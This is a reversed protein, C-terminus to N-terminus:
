AIADLRLEARIASPDLDDSAIDYRITWGSPGADEVFVRYGQCEALSAITRPGSLLMLELSPSHGVALVRADPPLVRNWDLFAQKMALGIEDCLDPFDALAADLIKGGRREAAHCAAFMRRVDERGHQAYIPAHEPVRTFAFDGAGEDFAALTQHTRWYSSAFIHTFGRGRLQREGVARALAFGKPGLTRGSPGDKISHRRFEFTRM